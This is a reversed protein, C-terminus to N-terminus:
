TLAERHEEVGSTYGLVRGHLVRGDDDQGVAVVEVVLEEALEVAAELNNTLLGLLCVAAVLKAIEKLYAAAPDDKRGDLLEHGM